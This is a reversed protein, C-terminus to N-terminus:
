LELEGITHFITVPLFTCYSWKKEIGAQIGMVGNGSTNIYETYRM